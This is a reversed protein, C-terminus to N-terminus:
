APPPMGNFRNAAEAIGATVFCRLAAGAREILGPLLADEEASFTDLVYDRTERGPDAARGVDEVQHLALAPQHPGRM